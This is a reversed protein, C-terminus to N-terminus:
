ECREKIKKRQENKRECLSFVFLMSDHLVMSGCAFAQKFRAGRLEQKQSTPLSGREAL